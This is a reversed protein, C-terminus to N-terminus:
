GEAKLVIEGYAASEAELRANRVFATVLGEAAWADAKEGGFGVEVRFPENFVKVGFRAFYLLKRRTVESANWRPGFMYELIFEGDDEPMLNLLSHATTRHVISAPYTSWRPRPSKANWTPRCKECAYYM